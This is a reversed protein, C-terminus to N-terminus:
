QPLVTVIAPHLEWTTKVFDTGRKHNFDQFALGRADVPIPTPLEGSGPGLAVGQPALATKLALRSPCFTEEKPTEVIVRPANKDPSDALELHLDCDGPNVRAYQLYARAIHFLQLERGTRPADNPPEAPIPWGLITDVSIEQAPGGPVDVHKAAHRYDASDPQTDVCQCIPDKQKDSSSGGCSLFSLLIASAAFTLIRRLM